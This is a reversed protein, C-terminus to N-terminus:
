LILRHVFCGLPSDCFVLESDTFTFMKFFIDYMAEWVDPINGYCQIMKM